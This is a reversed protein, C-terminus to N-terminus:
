IEGERVLEEYYWFPRIDWDILWLGLFYIESKIVRGKDMENWKIWFPFKWFSSSKVTQMERLYQIVDGQSM